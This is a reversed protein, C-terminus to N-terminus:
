RREAPHLSPTGNQNGPPPLRSGAVLRELGPAAAQLTAVTFQGAGEPPLCGDPEDAAASLVTVVDGRETMWAITKESPRGDAFTATFGYRLGDGGAVSAPEPPVGEFRYGPPCSKARDETTTRYLDAIREELPQHDGAPFDLLEVVGVPVGAREICLLPADGECHRVRFGGGLDVDLAPAQWDVILSGGPPEPTDESSAATTTTTTAPEPIAADNGGCAPVLLLM